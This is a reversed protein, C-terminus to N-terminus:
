LEILVFIIFIKALFVLSVFSFVVSFFPIFTQNSVEYNGFCRKQGVNKESQQNTERTEKSSSTFISKNEYSEFLTTLKTRLDEIKIKAESKGLKAYCFEVLTLKFRPDFVTTMAVEERYKDFRERMQVIMKRMIEDQNSTNSVLWDNIKWVQMFYLNITPYSSGSILNTIV